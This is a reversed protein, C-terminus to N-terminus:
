SLFYLYDAAKFSSKNTKSVQMIRLLGQANRSFLLRLLILFSVNCFRNTHNVPSNMRSCTATFLLHASTLDKCYRKFFM